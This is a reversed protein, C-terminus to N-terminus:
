RDLTQKRSNNNEVAVVSTISGKQKHSEEFDDVKNVTCRLHRTGGQSAAILYWPLALCPVRLIVTSFRPPAARPARLGRGREPPWQKWTQDEMEDRHM